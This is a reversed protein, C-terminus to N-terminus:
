DRTKCWQRWVDRYAAELHRTIKAPDSVTGGGMRERLLQRTQNLSPLEQAIQVARQLYEQESHTIFKDLGAGTLAAVGVRSITHEGALTLVPVGMWLSHMSTTGGNYPFTDLAMDIQHHLALYDLLSMRPKLILRQADVGAQAFLDLVRRKIIDDTVNGLMLRAHPLAALIQSWLNVVTQNIKVLNNLSAFVFEGSTLAPLANVQPCHPEPRYPANSGPLRILAESHYKETMGPPDMCADTIRYDMASLGTTGAYGIWTVQVPAPKRAFVSLRNGATHGSLDVLIDISDVRIREALQEDSMEACDLWHDAHRMIQDTYSDRRRNNYYCYVEIVAKDHGALIPEIFYAVPHNKFDASVYGVKLRRHADAKNQYKPWLSKLPAEICQAYHKHANFLERPTVMPMYQMNLLRNSHATAFDPKIAIARDYYAQAETLEGQVMLTAGLNCLAEINDPKIALAQKYRAAAETLKGQGMLANGLDCLAEPFDPKIALAQEYHTVAETLKGQVMLATGLSGLAEPFDPKIALAKQYCPIAQTPKGQAMFASGLCCLVEPFQPKIALAQQYHPIAQTPKSQAMLANGLALLAEPFVPRVSLANEYSAIAETLKGQTTLVNGLNLLVEPSDPKVSLAKEYCAIAEALKGQDRFTDGLNYLAEPFNPKIILAQQYSAIAETLKGMDMLANGLNSHFEAVKDNLSIARGIMEAALEHRGTLYAVVGLLHLSDVHHADLSLIQRYLAEAEALRSSQVYQGAQAFLDAVKDAPTTTKVSGASFPANSTASATQGMEKVRAMLVDVAPGSLGQKMGQTLIMQADQVHGAALLAKVYSLWYEGQEPAAELATKLFPLAAGAKGVGIAIIGLNHNVAPHRPQVQLIARYLHEAERLQGANHHVFARKLAQEITSIPTPVTSM